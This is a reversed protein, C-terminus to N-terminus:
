WASVPAKSSPQRICGSSRMSCRAHICWTLVSATTVCSIAPGSRRKRWEWCVAAVMLSVIIVFLELALHVALMRTDGEAFLRFRPLALAALLVLAGAIMTLLATRANKDAAPIM